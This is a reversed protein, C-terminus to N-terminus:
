PTTSPVIKGDRMQIRRTAVLAVEESHTVVLLTTRRQSAIKQLLEMVQGASASDLNGTPEDALLLKPEHILARAVATRQMQGGSLQHPFHGRRATLGVLDLLEEVRATVRAMPAGALLLPLGVNEAVTMTPLLNFFQFVVGVGTRRYATLQSESAAHLGIGNVFVEGSSVSDLGGLIHLLTSKGCGSPGTIACFEHEAFEGTVRDLAAGSNPYSRSVDRLQIM